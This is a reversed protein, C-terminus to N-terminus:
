GGTANIRNVSIHLYTVKTTRAAEPVARENKLAKDFHISGDQAIQARSVVVGGFLEGKRVAFNSYSGPAYIVGTVKPNDTNKEMVAGFDSKGYFWVQTSNHQQSSTVVKGGNVHMHTDFGDAWPEAEPDETPNEGKIYFRVKHSGQVEITARNLSINDRVAISVNGDTADITLTESSTLDIREVYFREPGSDGGLTGGDTINNDTIVTDSDSNKKIKSVRENIPGDIKTAGEVESIQEYEVNSDLPTPGVSNGYEIREGHFNSWKKLYVSGGASINGYVDIGNDQVDVDGATELTANNWDPYGEGSYGDGNASTYADIGPTTSGVFEITGSSSSAQVADTVKRDGVPVTLSATVRNKGHQYTVQGDTRQEFYSGWARYYPGGVTVNVKGSDLPNVFKSNLSKNPYYRTTSNQTITTRGSLSEDGSVRVMPLTLTADRYHFEPPSIMVSRGNREQWVGGGQYAIATDKNRYVIAGMSENYITTVDRTATNMYSVNMWGSGPEVAFGNGSETNLPIQQTKSDGIAVMAAQSDLQTMTNQAREVDLQNQTDTIAQGGVVVVLASGAIVIAFVLIVALPASQARSGDIGGRRCKGGADPKSM